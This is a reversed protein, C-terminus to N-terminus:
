PPREPDSVRLLEIWFCSGRGPKSAVGLTHGLAAAGRRVIALGLGAGGGNRDAPPSSVFDQFIHLRHEPAIGRGSDWVQLLLRDKGRRRVAVLVGGRETYRLANAVLNRLMQELLLPESLAVALTPRFRLRLGRAEAQAHEHLAIADFLQQLPVPQLTPPPATDLRSLDLLGRLLEDLGSLARAAKALMAQAPPQSHRLEEAALNVMLAVAAVPQRLDHSAVALFRSKAANAEALEATRVAVRHELQQGLEESRTLGQVLRDLLMAGYSLLVFPLVFPVWYFDTIPLWGHLYRYDHAGAAALLSAGSLLLLLALGRPQQRLLPWLVIAVGACMLMLLPYVLLRLQALADFALWALAGSLPLLVLAGAYLRQVRPWPRGSLAVAFLGLLCVTVAQACFYLWESLPGPLPSVTVFYDHNRLSAVLWMLGFLGTAREQPRRLWVMLMLCALAGGGINLAQPLETDWARDRRWGPLLLEQPGLLVPSLGGRPGFSLELRLENRGAQLLAPAITLFFPLTRLRGQGDTGQEHVLRGNLYIRHASSLRDIRLAWAQTAPPAALTFDLRYVGRAGFGTPWTHPLAVRVPGAPAATLEAQQLTLAASIVSYTLLMLAALLARLM